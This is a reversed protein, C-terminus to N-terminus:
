SRQIFGNKPEFLDGSRLLQNILEEAKHKEIGQNEANSFIESKPVSKGFQSELSEIIQRVISM